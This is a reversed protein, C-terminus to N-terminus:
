YSYKVYYWATGIGLLSLVNFNLSFGLTITMVILNLRIPYFEYQVLPDVLVKQVVNNQLGLNEFLVGLVEGVINGALIGVSIAVILFGVNRRGM